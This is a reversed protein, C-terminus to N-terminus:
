DQQLTTVGGRSKSVDHRSRGLSGVQMGAPSLQMDLAAFDPWPLSVRPSKRLHSQGLIRSDSGAIAFYEPLIALSANRAAARDLAESKLEM